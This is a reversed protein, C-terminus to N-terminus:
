AELHWKERQHFFEAPNEFYALCSEVIKFHRREEGILFGYLKKAAPHTAEAEARTYFIESKREFDAAFRYVDLDSGEIPADKALRDFIQGINSKHEKMGQIINETNAALGKMYSESFNRIAKLHNLEEGALYEFVDRAFQNQAKAASDNFFKHGKEELEIAEELAKKDPFDSMNMYGRRELGFISAPGTMDVPYFGPPHGFAM